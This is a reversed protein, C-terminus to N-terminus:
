PPNGVFGGLLSAERYVRYQLMHNPIENPSGQLALGHIDSKAPEGNPPLAIYLLEVMNRGLQLWRGYIHTTTIQAYSGPRHATHGHLM